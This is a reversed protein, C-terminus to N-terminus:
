RAHTHFWRGTKKRTAACAPMALADSRTAIVRHFYPRRFRYREIDRATGATMIADCVSAVMRSTKLGGLGWMHIIEGAIFQQRIGVIDARIDGVIGRKLLNEVCADITARKQFARKADRRSRKETGAQAGTSAAKAVHHRLARFAQLQVEIGDGLAQGICQSNRGSIGRGHKIPEAIRNRGANRFVPVVASFAACRKLLTGAVMVVAHMVETEAVIAFVVRARGITTQQADIV